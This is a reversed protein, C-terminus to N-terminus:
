VSLKLEKAAVMRRERYALNAMHAAAAAHHGEVENEATPTREKVSQIFFGMHTPRNPDPIVKVQEPQKAKAMVTKPRGDPSWGHSEFYQERLKKPWGNIGYRQVGLDPAEPFIEIGGYGRNGIVMTADTGMIVLGRVGDGHANGLNVCLDVILGQPYEYLSTMLDPVTRGDHWRYIGGNSVVTKPLTLGAIEHITTILHVFLDTAVGGSYEWWCRWRFFREPSWPMPPASGLFRKWDVTEASADPPIPYRWAGEASNRYNAARVMNVKGLAGSQVIEKAKATVPSSKAESGVQLRRTSDKMARMIELGEEISWTMPKECYIDKGASIADLVMRTHWHDPTAIAVADIDKRDLLRRYDKGTDAKGDTLEKVNELHGDYLDAAAVINTDPMAQFSRLLHTGRIGVGIFGMNVRDNAAAKLASAGAQAAGLLAASDRLFARRSSTTESM